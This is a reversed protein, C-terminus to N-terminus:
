EDPFCRNYLYKYLEEKAPFGTNEAFKMVRAKEVKADEEIEILEEVTLKKKLVEIQDMKKWWDMESQTRYGLHIDDNPGVHEKYRYTVFELFFPMNLERCKKVYVNVRSHNDLIDVDFFEYNIGFPKVREAFHPGTPNRKNVHSHIAYFNNELVFIIPLKRLAAFNISEWVSGEDMAGDGLFVVTVTNKKLLKNAQAFGVAVPVTSAVIASSGMFNVSLEILHMSGGRGGCCGTEKGYLEAILENLSGGKAIYAAHGRCSSFVADKKELNHCVAVAVAEQGISLHIPSQIVDSPYLEAVLEEFWRIKYMEAYLKRTLRGSLM